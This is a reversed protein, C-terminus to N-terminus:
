SMIYYVNIIFLIYYYISSYIVYETFVQLTFNEDEFFPGYISEGSTGDNKVIDGAQVMFLRQVKHFKSGKYHLPKGSSGIGREGTCLCRFNEATRPVVDKRLEIIVRGVSYVIKGMLALFKKFFITSFSASVMKLAVNFTWFYLQIPQM